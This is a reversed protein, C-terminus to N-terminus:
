SVPDSMIAVKVQYFVWRGVPKHTQLASWQGSAWSLDLGRAGSSLYAPGCEGPGCSWSPLCFSGTGIWDQSRRWRWRQPYSSGSETWGQRRSWRWFDRKRSEWTERRRSWCAARTRQSATAQTRRARTVAEQFIDYSKLSTGYRM